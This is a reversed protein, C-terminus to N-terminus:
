KQKNLRVQYILMLVSNVFWYLVLGSPMQYFIVGFMIPMIISMIKQQQAAEGTAKV